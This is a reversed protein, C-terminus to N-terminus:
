KRRRYKHHRKAVTATASCAVTITAPLTVTVSPGCVAQQFHCGPTETSFPESFHPSCSGAERLPWVHFTLTEPIFWSAALSQRTPGSYLPRPCRDPGEKRDFFCPANLLHAYGKAEPSSAAQFALGDAPGTVQADRTTCYSCPEEVEAGIIIPPEGNEWPYASASAPLALALTAILVALRM